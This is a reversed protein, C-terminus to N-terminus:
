VVPLNIALRVYGDADPISQFQGVKPTAVLGGTASMTPTVNGNTTLYATAGATPTGTYNSTHVWGRTLLEVPAGSPVEEKHFNLHYRSQDTSVVDQLLIGAPTKGSPNAVKDVTGATAGLSAGSGSTQFVMVPGRTTVAVSSFTIETKELQRDRGLAM